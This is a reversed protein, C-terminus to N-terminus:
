GVQVVKAPQAGLLGPGGMSQPLLMAGAPARGNVHAVVKLQAQGVEVTIVDGDDINLKTADEVNLDVYADPIHTHMLDSPKFTTGHDYLVSIPIAILEGVPSQAPEIDPIAAAGDSSDDGAQLRQEARSPYQMGMGATNKFSTGGYYLDDGGVDPLQESVQALMQYSLAAYQPVERAIQAFVSAASPPCDGQGLREGIQGFLQWDARSQGKPSMAPYFRQVRREGNTFTGEREVFSQAPLIVDAKEATATMFLEIAVMFHPAQWADWDGLPDAGAALVVQADGAFESGSVGAAPVGMDWAGQTNNHPWVPILGNNARGVHGTAVLLTACAQALGNSGNHDLGEGGFFVILNEANAIAEGAASIDEGASGAISAALGAKDGAAAHALMLMTHAEEGYTYRLAHKAYRDLKTPRANAVILTACSKDLTAGQKTAAQKIRLWWVPAEEALDSAVVLIVTNTGVNAIDTGVGVGFQQVLDGGGMTGPWQAVRGGGGEILGRFNFLDENSLREGALGAISGEAARMKEAVLDLAEDWTAEILEGAENRIMPATIREDSTAFHHGFRGKDCIWIENVLENQRPMVRKVVNNGTLGSRRTNLHINCGVPCHPCISASHQLEWPRAGFRFDATTLAGVPCIDTTNGSFYSDFGPESYSVIQLARGREEFGIVADDAIEEQFRTCRACQICRERDLYILDGLPVHKDLRFKEDVIFRSSGPGHQMTLNQLPCEGGKDCIPCDLPHSTLLFEVVDRRARTVNDNASRVQMGPSVPETCATVFGPRWGMKPTGDEMVLEGTARDRMPTGVEVLCMRCMGVPDLKPHYCFVPIDNGIQKAADVLLTGVPVTVEQDDILITVDDAM